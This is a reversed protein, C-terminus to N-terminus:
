EDRGSREGRLQREVRAVGTVKLLEFTQHFDGRHQCRLQRSPLSAWVYLITLFWVTRLGSPRTPESPKPQSAVSTGTFGREEGSERTV